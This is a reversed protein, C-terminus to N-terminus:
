FPYRSGSSPPLTALLPLYPPFPLSMSSGNCKETNGSFGSSGFNIQHSLDCSRSTGDLVRLQGTRALDLVAVEVGGEVLRQMLRQHDLGFHLFGIDLLSSLCHSLYSILLQINDYTIYLNFRTFLAINWFHNKQHKKM